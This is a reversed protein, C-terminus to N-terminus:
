TRYHNLPPKPHYSATSFQLEVLATVQLILCPTNPYIGLNSTITYETSRVPCSTAAIVLWYQWYLAALTLHYWRIYWDSKLLQAFM